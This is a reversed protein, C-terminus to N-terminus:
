STGTSVITVAQAKEEVNSSMSIPDKPSVADKVDGASCASLVAASLAAIVIRSTSM